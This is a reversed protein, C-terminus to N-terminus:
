KRFSLTKKGKKEKRRRKSVQLILLLSGCGPSSYGLTLGFILESDIIMLLNFSIVVYSAPPFSGLGAQLL